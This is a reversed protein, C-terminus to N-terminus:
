ETVGKIISDVPLGMDSLYNEVNTMDEYLEILMDGNCIFFNEYLWKDFSEQTLLDDM